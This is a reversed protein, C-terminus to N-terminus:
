HQILTITTQNPTRNSTSWSVLLKYPDLIQQPQQLDALERAPSSAAEPTLTNFIQLNPAPTMNTYVKIMSIILLSTDPMPSVTSKVM